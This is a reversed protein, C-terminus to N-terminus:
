LADKTFELDLKTMTTSNAFDHQLPGDYFSFRCDMGSHCGRMNHEAGSLLICHHGAFDGLAFERVALESYM